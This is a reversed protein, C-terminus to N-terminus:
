AMVAVYGVEPDGALEGDDVLKRLKRAVNRAHVGLVAAVDGSSAPAHGQAGLEVVAQKVQENDVAPTTRHRAGELRKLVMRLDSREKRLVGIQDDIEILRASIASGVQHKPM